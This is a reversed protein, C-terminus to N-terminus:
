GCVSNNKISYNFSNNEHDTFTIVKYGNCYDFTTTALNDLITKERYGGFDYIAKLDVYDFNRVIRTSKDPSICAMRYPIFGWKTYSSKVMDHFFLIGTIGNLYHELGIASYETLTPKNPFSKRGLKEYTEKTEIILVDSYVLNETLNYKSFLKKYTNRYNASTDKLYENYNFNTIM